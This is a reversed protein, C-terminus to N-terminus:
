IRDSQVLQLTVLRDSFMRGLSEVGLRCSGTSLDEYRVMSNIYVTRRAPSRLSSEHDETSTSTDTFSRKHDCGQYTRCPYLASETRLGPLVLRPDHKGFSGLSINMLSAIIARLCGFEEEDLEQEEVLKVAYRKFVPGLAM